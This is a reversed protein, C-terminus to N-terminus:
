SRPVTVVVTTGGYGNESDRGEVVIEAVDDPITLGTQTRTFPQEDAHDHALAHRGLETGDRDLVRWGDAYRQPTDYGSSVTVALSWTGDDAATLEAHEVDPYPRDPDVSGAGPTQGPAPSVAGSAPDAVPEGTAGGCGVLALAALVPVVTRTAQAHMGRRYGGSM